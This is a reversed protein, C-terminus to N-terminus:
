KVKELMRLAKKYDHGNIELWEIAGDALKRGYARVKQNVRVSFFKGVGLNEFNM